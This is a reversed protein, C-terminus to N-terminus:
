HRWRAGDETGEEERLWESVLADSVGNELTKPNIPTPDTLIDTADKGRLYIILGNSWTSWADQGSLIALKPRQNTDM